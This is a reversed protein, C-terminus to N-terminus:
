EGASGGTSGAGGAGGAGGEGGSKKTRGDLFTVASSIDSLSTATTTSSLSLLTALDVRAVWERQSNVLFGVSRGDAIGTTVAVGHPDGINTWSSGTPLVPM